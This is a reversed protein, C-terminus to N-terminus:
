DDASSDGDPKHRVLAGAVEREIEASLLLCERVTLHPEKGPAVAQDIEQRNEGGKGIPPQEPQQRSPAQRKELSRLRNVIWLQSRQRTPATNDDCPIAAIHTPQAHTKWLGNGGTCRSGPFNEVREAAHERWLDVSSKAIEIM